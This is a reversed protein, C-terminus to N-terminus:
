KFYLESELQRRKVLGSSIDDNVYIWKMFNSHVNMDIPNINIAKLLSSSKFNGAGVNYIFSCLADFQNQNLTTKVLSNLINVVPKVDTKLLTEATTRDIVATMLWKESETDILTGYGITWKNGLDRYAKSSFGEFGKILNIGTLSIDMRKKM